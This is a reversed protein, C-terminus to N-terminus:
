TTGKDCITFGVGEPGVTYGYGGCPCLRDHKGYIDERPIDALPRLRDAPVLFAPRPLFKKGLRWFEQTQGDRGRVWGTIEFWPRRHTRIHVYVADPDDSPHLLLDGGERLSSRVQLNAGVDAPILKYDEAFGVRPVGFHKAVAAEAQCGIRCLEAGGETDHRLGHAGPTGAKRHFESRMEAHVLATAVEANTLRVLTPTTM